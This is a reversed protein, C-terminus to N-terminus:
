LPSAKPPDAKEPSLVLPALRKKSWMMKALNEPKPPCGEIHPLGHERAFARTCNGACVFKADRCDPMRSRFGMFVYFPKRLGYEFFTATNRLNDPLSRPKMALKTFGSLAELCGSCCPKIQLHFNMMHFWDGLDPLKFRTSVSSLKEGVIKTAVEPLRVVKPDIRMVQLAANEVELMDRGCLLLGLKRPRGAIPFTSNPGNGDMAIIGDLISLDPKLVRSLDCIAEQVGLHHFRKKDKVRLLGKQNKLLMSVVVGYHTKMKAINVYECDFAIKPLELTGHKWEVPVREQRELDVLKVNSFRRPLRDYRYSRMSEAFDMGSAVGEGVVIQRDRFIRALAEVLSVHVYDGGKVSGYPSAVNPKLLLTEKRPRYGILEFARELNSQVDRYGSRVIAVTM